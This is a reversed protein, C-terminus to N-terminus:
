AHASRVPLRVAGGLLLYLIAKQVHLRNEAQEFVLSNDSDMVEDTVEQGRHAPLCHMFVAHPAAEAMLSRNVQYPAFIGARQEAEQEQGMSAWADTYIADAGAVAAHPDTLIEIRAGSQKAIKRAEAVIKANPEYGKPTAVRVSSGLCAATLLLSHAV